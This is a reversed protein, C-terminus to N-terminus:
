RYTGKDHFVLQNVKSDGKGTFTGTFSHGKLSGTGHTLSLKGKTIMETHGDAGIALTATASGSLSGTGTYLVVPKSTVQLTGTTGNPIVKLRYTVTGHGLIKDVFDGDAVEISGNSVTHTVAAWVTGSDAKGKSKAGFATATLALVLCGAALAAVPRLSRSM